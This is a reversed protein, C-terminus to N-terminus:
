QIKPGLCKTPRKIQIQAETGPFKLIEKISKEGMWKRM